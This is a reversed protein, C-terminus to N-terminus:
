EKHQIQQHFLAAQAGYLVFLVLVPQLQPAAIVVVMTKVPVMQVLVVMLAMLHPVLRRAQDQRDMPDKAMYVLAAGKVALGDVAALQDAGAAVVAVV